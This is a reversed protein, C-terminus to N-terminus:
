GRLCGRELHTIATTYGRRLQRPPPMLRHRQSTGAAPQCGPLSAGPQWCRSSGTLKCAVVGLPGTSGVIAPQMERGCEPGMKAWGGWGGKRVRSGTSGRGEHPTCDLAAVTHGLEDQLADGRGLHHLHVAQVVRLASRAAVAGGANGASRSAM